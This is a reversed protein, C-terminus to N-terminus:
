RAAEATVPAPAARQRAIAATVDVVGDYAADIVALNADVVAAGRKGFFRTLNTRVADRLAERDLGAREAFPSVKLFVGVLAVGQMRIELDPRPAYKMALSATDLALLRIHRALIEARTAPPLAAWVEEPDTLPTPLFITGGDVLGALPDGQKFSNVDFLPVFDVETLENHLRIPEEAITLFYTTPLGKKESGYRPYAQVYLNFLEGVTTAVLKNTTVSGFGGVSHGRLSYAGRPRINLGNNALALPHRIGLVARRQAKVAKEDAIWDFVAGLDGPQIDRSGLGASVSVVRPLPAGDMAADALASKLERTLPNDAAAPEDTREVVAVVKANRLAAALQTAPFPRFSTVTVCGVKRGDCRLSDVVALATDAMTGMSVMVYDSDETKYTDILGYHRGTLATWEAMARDTIETLRDYWTRQGIRGKMYSDQNEVVGSMLADKPDFLDRVTKRPDGVFRRLLDDEPLLVNEITHTTLFGDQAVFWPTEADEAVRRAIATLDAAEQCNRAFFMGWGCDAVGMMDDHGAHINLAQSTLARAGVHFVVPLRKGAIVYLVEKMLILGQGATFNTVRGGALAFGEAASASSHESEPEIFKLHTGWLNPTGNAVAVQYVAAMTTSPTIPYACAGDSIRTEVYAIAESGDIIAPIGPFEPTPQNTVITPESLSRLQRALASGDLHKLLTGGIGSAVAERQEDSHWYSALVAIRGPPVLDRLAAVMPRWGGAVDADLLVVDPRSIAAERAASECSAQAVIFGHRSLHDCLAETAARHQSVILLRRLPIQFEALM